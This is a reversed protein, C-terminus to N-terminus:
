PMSVILSMAAVIAIVGAASVIRSCRMRWASSLHMSAARVAEAGSLFGQHDGGGERDGTGIRLERPEGGSLEVARERRGIAVPEGDEQPIGDNTAGVALDHPQMGVQPPDPVLIDTAQRPHRLRCAVLAQSGGRWDCRPGRDRDVPVREAPLGEARRRDEDRHRQAAGRKPDGDHSHKGIDVRGGGHLRPRRSDCARDSLDRRDLRGHPLSALLGEAEPRAQHRCGPERQLAAADFNGIVVARRDHEFARGHKGHCGWGRGRESAALRRDRHGPGARASARGAECQLCWGGRDGVKAGRKAHEHAISAFSGHTHEVAEDIQQRPQFVGHRQPEGRTFCGGGGRVLGGAFHIWRRLLKHPRQRLNRGVEQLREGFM